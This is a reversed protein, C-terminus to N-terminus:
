MVGKRALATIDSNTALVATCLLFLGLVTFISLVAFAKSLWPMSKIKDTLKRFNGTAGYLAIILILWGSQIFYLDTQSIISGGSGVLLGLRRVGDSLSDAMIFTWGPFFALFFMGGYFLSPIRAFRKRMLKDACIWLGMWAGWVVLQLEPRMWCGILTWAFIKGLCPLIGRGKEFVGFCGSFWSVATMNWGKDFASLSGSLVPYDYSKPLRFGYCLAIGEAMEAFGSVTFYFELAFAAVTLLSMLLSPSKDMAYESLFLMGLTDALLVKKSLGKVFVTMGEGISNLSFASARIMERHENMSQVPGMVLRPYFLLYSLVEPIRQQGPIRRKMVDVVYRIGQLVFFATGFPPYMFFLGAEGFVRRQYACWLFFETVFGAILLVSALIFLTKKKRLRESYKGYFAAAVAFLMLALGSAWDTILLFVASLATFGTERAKAPLLRYILM